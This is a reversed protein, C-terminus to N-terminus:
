AISEVTFFHVDCGPHFASIIQVVDARDDATHWPLMFVMYSKLDGPGLYEKSYPAQTSEIGSRTVIPTPQLRHVSLRSCMKANVDVPSISDWLDENHIEHPHIVIASGSMKSPDSQCVLLYM